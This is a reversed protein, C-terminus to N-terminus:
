QNCKLPNGNKDLLQIAGRHHDLIKYKYGNECRIEYDFHMGERYPDIQSEHYISLAMLGLIFAMLILFAKM